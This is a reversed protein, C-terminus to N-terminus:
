SSRPFNLANLLVALLTKQGRETHAWEEFHELTAANLPEETQAPPTPQIQWPRLPTVKRECKAPLVYIEERSSRAIREMYYTALVTAQHIDTTWEIKKGPVWGRDALVAYEGKSNRILSRNSM